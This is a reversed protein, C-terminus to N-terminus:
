SFQRRTLSKMMHGKAHGREKASFNKHMAATKAVEVVLKQINFESKAFSRRLDELTTPGYAAAPQKVM